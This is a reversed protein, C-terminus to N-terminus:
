KADAVVPIGGLKYADHAAVNVGIFRVNPDAFASMSGTSFDTLRTGICLVVDAQALIRGAAPNGTVGFGGLLMESPRLMAGKGALTEGVPIGFAEALEQLEDWAQAYHVGGGAVIAPRQASKLLAIM